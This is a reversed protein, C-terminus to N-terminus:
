AHLWLDLMKKVKGFFYKVFSHVGGLRSNSKCRESPVVKSSSSSEFDIVCCVRFLSAVIMFVSPLICVLTYLYLSGGFLFFSNTGNTFFLFSRVDKRPYIIKGLILEKVLIHSSSFNDEWLCLFTLCQFNIRAVMSRAYM